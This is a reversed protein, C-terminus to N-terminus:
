SILVPILCLPSGLNNLGTTGRVREEKPPSETFRTNFGTRYRESFREGSSQSLSNLSSTRPYAGPLVPGSIPKGNLKGLPASEDDSDFIQNETSPRRHSLATFSNPNAGLTRGGNALLSSSQTSSQDSLSLEQDMPFVSGLKREVAIGLYPEVIGIQGVTQSKLSFDLCDERDPILTLARKTTLKSPTM